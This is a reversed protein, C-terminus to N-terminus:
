RTVVEARLFDVTTADYRELSTLYAIFEKAVQEAEHDPCSALTFRLDLVLDTPDTRTRVIYPTINKGPIM